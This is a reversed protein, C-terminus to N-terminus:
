SIGEYEKKFHRTTYYKRKIHNLRERDLTMLRAMTKEHGEILEQETKYFRCNQCEKSTLASCRRKGSDFACEGM